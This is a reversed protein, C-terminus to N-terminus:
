IKSIVLYVDAGETVTGFWVIKGDGRPAMPHAAAATGATNIQVM